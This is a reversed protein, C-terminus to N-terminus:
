VIASKRVVYRYTAMKRRRYFTNDISLVLRDAEAERSTFSNHMAEEVAAMKRPNEMAITYSGEANSVASYDLKWIGM